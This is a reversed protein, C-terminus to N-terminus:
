GRRAVVEAANALVTIDAGAQRVKFIALDPDTAGVLAVTSVDEMITGALTCLRRVLDAADQDVDGEKTSLSPPDPVPLGYGAKQAVYEM